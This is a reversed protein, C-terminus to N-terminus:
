IARFYTSLTAQPRYNIADSSYAVREGGVINYVLLSLKVIFLMSSVSIAFAVM